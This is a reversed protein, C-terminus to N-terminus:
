GLGAPAPRSASDAHPGAASEQEAQGALVPVPSGDPAPEDPGLEAASSREGSPASQGVAEPLAGVNHQLLRWRGARLGLMSWSCNALPGIVREREPLGLLRSIGLNIAAGHSVVVALSGDELGAAIREFAAAARVAVADFAEGDAPEWAAYADPYRSRIETDTLGEWGGGYRERLDADVAVALGTLRALPEATGTARALDSSVIAAPKLAAILGASRSAQQRGVEDLPVDTQGQFRRQANWATQGHRWLVLRVV